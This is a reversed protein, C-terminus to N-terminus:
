PGHDVADGVIRALHPVEGVRPLHQPVLREVASRFLPSLGPGQGVGHGSESGATRSPQSSRTSQGTGPVVIGEQADDSGTEFWREPPM